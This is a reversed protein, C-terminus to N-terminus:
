LTTYAIKSSKSLAVYTGTGAPDTGGSLVHSPRDMERYLSPTLAPSRSTAYPLAREEEERVGRYCGVM